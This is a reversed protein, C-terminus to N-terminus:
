AKYRAYGILMLCIVLTLSLIIPFNFAGMSEFVSQMYNGVFMVSSLVGVAM